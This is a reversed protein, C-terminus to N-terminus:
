YQLLCKIGGFVDFGPENPLLGLLYPHAFDFQLVLEENEKLYMGRKRRLDIHFHWIRPEQVAFGQQFTTGDHDCPVCDIDGTTEICITGSGTALTNCAPTGPVIYTHVDVDKVPYFADQHTTGTINSLVNGGQSHHTWTRLWRAEGFDDDEDLPHFATTEGQANILRKRLGVFAQYYSLLNNAAVVEPGPPPNRLLQYFFLDGTIRKVSAADSFQDELITQNVLQFIVSTGSRGDSCAGINFQYLNCWSARINTNWTRRVRAVPRGFPKKRFTRKRFAM